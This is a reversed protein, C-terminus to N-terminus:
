PPRLVLGLLHAPEDPAPFSSTSLSLMRMPVDKLKAGSGITAGQASAKMCKKKTKRLFVAPQRPRPALGAQRSGLLRTGAAKGKRLGALQAPKVDGRGPGPLLLCFSPVVLPTREM